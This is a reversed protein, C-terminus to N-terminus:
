FQMLRASAIEFICLDDRGPRSSALIRGDPSIAAAGVQEKNIATTDIEKWTRTNWARVHDASTVALVAGDRPFRVGSRGDDFKFVRVPKFEVLPSKEEAPSSGPDAQATGNVMLVFGVAVLLSQSRRVYLMAIGEEPTAHLKPRRLGVLFRISAPPVLPLRSRVPLM